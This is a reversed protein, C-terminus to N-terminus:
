GVGASGVRNDDDVDVVEKVAPEWVVLGLAESEWAQLGWVAVYGKSCGSSADWGGLNDEDGLGDLGDEGDGGLGGGGERGRGGERVEAGGERGRCGGCSSKSIARRDRGELM